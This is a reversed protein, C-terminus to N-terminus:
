PSRKVIHNETYGGGPHRHADEATSFNLFQQGATGLM